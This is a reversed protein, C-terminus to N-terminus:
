GHCCLIKPHLGAGEIGDADFAKPFAKRGINYAGNTDANLITGKKSKYLGRQIRRGSFNYKKGKEHKIPILDGDLFSAKSTYAEGEVFVDIGVLNCKYEIQNILFRFPLQVFKQNNIKGINCRQKWGENYGVVISGIDHKILYDVVERSIRHFELNIKNNRKQHLRKIRKSDKFVGQKNLISRYRSLQKNYYQNMSKVVGGKVVIPQEGINNVMTIINNLGIDISAVNDKNLNLDIEEKEHVIEIKYGIGIPLVRVQHLKSNIRTKVPKLNAKKPFHLFGDKIKCQQNTFIAVMEGNKEKYRPPKPRGLFKRPNAKWEKMARFFSKWSAELLKLAQQATQAPLVKYSEKSKFIYDLDHYNLFRELCIYEQKIYYNGANWLNKSAHCLSSLEENKKVQISETLLMM